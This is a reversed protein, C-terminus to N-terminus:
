TDQWNESVWRLFDPLRSTLYYPDIDSPVKRFLELNHASLENVYLQGLRLNHPNNRGYKLMVNKDWQYFNM